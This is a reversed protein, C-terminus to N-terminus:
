FASSLGLFYGFLFLFSLLARAVDSVLLYDSSAFHVFHSAITGWM